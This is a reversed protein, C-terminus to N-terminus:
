CFSVRDLKEKDSRLYSHFENSQIESHILLGTQKLLWFNYENKYACFEETKAPGTLNHIKIVENDRLQM